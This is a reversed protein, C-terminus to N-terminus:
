YITSRVNEIAKRRELGASKESDTLEVRTNVIIDDYKNAYAVAGCMDLAFIQVARKWEWVFCSVVSNYLLFSQTLM